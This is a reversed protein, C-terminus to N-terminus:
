LYLSRVLAVVTTHREELIDFERVARPDVSLAWPLLAVKLLYINRFCNIRSCSVVWGRRLSPCPTFCSSKGTVLSAAEEEPNGECLCSVIARGFKGLCRQCPLLVM